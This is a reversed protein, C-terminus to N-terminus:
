SYEGSFGKRAVRPALEDANIPTWRIESTDTFVFGVGRGYGIM